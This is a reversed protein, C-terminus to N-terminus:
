GWREAQRKLFEGLSAVVADSTPVVASGGDARRAWATAEEPTFAMLRAVEEACALTEYGPLERLLLDGDVRMESCFREWGEANVVLLYALMRAAGLRRAREAKGARGRFDDEQALLGSANAYRAALDLMRAVHFLALTRLGEALGFYDPLRFLSTPASAVLRARDAEDGRASAAVILPLRERPTLRDYLKALCDVKM